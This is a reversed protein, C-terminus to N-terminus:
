QTQGTIKDMIYMVLLALMPLVVVVLSIWKQKANFKVVLSAILVILTLSIIIVNLNVGAGYSERFGKGMIALMLLLLNM